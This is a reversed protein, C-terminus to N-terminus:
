RGFGFLQDMFEFQKQAGIVNKVGLRVKESVIAVGVGDRSLSRQGYSEGLSGFVNRTDNPKANPV